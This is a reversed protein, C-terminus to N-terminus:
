TTSSSVDEGGFAFKRLSESISGMRQRSTGWKGGKHGSFSIKFLFIDVNAWISGM